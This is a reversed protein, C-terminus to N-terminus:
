HAISTSAVSSISESAWSMWIISGQDDAVERRTFYLLSKEAISKTQRGACEVTAQLAMNRLNHWRQASEVGMMGQHRVALEDVKMDRKFRTATHMAPPSWLCSENDIPDLRERRQWTRLGQRHNFPSQVPADCRVALMDEYKM